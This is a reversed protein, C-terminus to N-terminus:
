GPPIGSRETEAIDPGPDSGEARVRLRDLYRTWGDRHHEAVPPPALGSHTLRLLTGAQAPELEILVTTSHPPVPPADGEWGWTFVLRKDPIVEVFRGSAVQGGPMAIRLVGGPRADIEGDIGQWSTWHEIDTFFAFVTAPTAAILRTVVVDTM